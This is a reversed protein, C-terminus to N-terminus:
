GESESFGARFYDTMIGSSATGCPFRGMSRSSFRGREEQRSPPNEWGDVGGDDRAAMGRGTLLARATRIANGQEQKSIEAGAEWGGGYSLRDHKWLGGAAALYEAPFAVCPAAASDKEGRRSPLVWSRGPGGREDRAEAM